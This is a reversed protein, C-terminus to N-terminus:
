DEIQIEYLGNLKVGSNSGKGILFEVHVEVDTFLEKTVLDKVRGPGNVIVGKGPVVALKRPNKEDLKADGAVIWQDSPSKWAEFPKEGRLDKWGDDAASGEAAAVFCMVLVTRFITAMM